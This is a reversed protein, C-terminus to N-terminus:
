QEHQEGSFYGRAAPASEILCRSLGEALKKLVSRHAGADQRGAAALACVRTAGACIEGYLRADNDAYVGAAIRAHARSNADAFAIANAETSLQAYYDAYAKADGFHEAIMATNAPATAYDLAIEHARAHSSAYPFAQRYLGPLIAKLAALWEGRRGNLGLAARRHLQQLTLLDTGRAGEIGAELLVPLVTEAQWAHMLRFPPPGGWGALATQLENSWRLVWDEPQGALLVAILEQYWDTRQEPHM